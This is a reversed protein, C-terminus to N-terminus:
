IGERYIRKCEKIITNLLTNNTNNNCYIELTDLCEERNGQELVKYMLCQIHELTFSLPTNSSQLIVSENSTDTVGENSTDTVGENSTNKVGENSTDKVGENSSVSIVGENSTGKNSDNEIYKLLGKNNYKNYLEKSVGKYCLIDKVFLYYYNNNNFPHQENTTTILPHQENTTTILPHLEKNSNSVGKYNDTSNIFGQHSGEISVGKYDDITNSIGKYNDRSNSVGKDSGEISVGKYSDSSDTSGEISDSGVMESYIKYIIELVREKCEKINYLGKILTINTSKLCYGTIEYVKRNRKLLVGIIM